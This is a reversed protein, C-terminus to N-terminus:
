IKSIKLFNDLIATIEKPTVSDTIRALIRIQTQYIDNANVDTYGLDKQCLFKMFEKDKINEKFNESYKNYETPLNNRLYNEPNYFPLFNTHSLFYDIFQRKLLFEQKSNKREKDKNADCNFKINKLGTMSSIYEDLKNNESSPIKDSSTITHEKRQDGDLLFFTKKLQIASLPVMFNNVINQAGGPIVEIIFQSAYNERKKKIANEVIAKALKDEVYITLKQVNYGIDIFAESPEIDTIVRTKSSNETNIFLKISDKPLNKIINGSHTSIIVQHKKEIIIKELFTILKDQASPHLSVEPEDILILSNESAKTILYILIIVSFEGSGAFAESYNYDDSKIFVTYAQNHGFLKHKLIRISKYNKGLVNSIDSIIDHNLEENIFLKEKQKKYPKLTTLNKDITKKLYKSKKRLYDKAKQQNIDSHYFCKDFASIMSRFDIYVVEKKIANWRTQSRNKSTPTNETIAYMQDSIKPRAPEWYDPDNYKNIRTKIVEVIKKTDEDYYGYIFRSRGFDKIEDVSTSFWLNGLSYNHPAGYLARLVSSKNTGNKGVLVTIPYSFDIKTNEELGKYFPFRIYSIYPECKKHDVLNRLTQELNKVM